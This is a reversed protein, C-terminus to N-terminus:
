FFGNGQLVAIGNGSGAMIPQAIGDGEAPQILESYENLSLRGFDDSHLPLPDWAAEDPPVPISEM